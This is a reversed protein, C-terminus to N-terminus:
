RITYVERLGISIAWCSSEGIAEGYRVDEAELGAEFAEDRWIESRGGMAMGDDMADIVGGAAAADEVFCAPDKYAGEGKEKEMSDIWRDM